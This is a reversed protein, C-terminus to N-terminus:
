SGPYSDIWEDTVCEVAVSCAGGSLRMATYGGCEGAQNVSASKLLTGSIAVVMLRSFSFHVGVVFWMFITSILLMGM